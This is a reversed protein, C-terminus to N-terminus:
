VGPSSAAWQEPATSIGCGVFSPQAVMGMRGRLPVTEMRVPNRRRFMGAM